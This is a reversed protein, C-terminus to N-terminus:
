AYPPHTQAYDSKRRYRSMLRDTGINFWRSAQRTRNDKGVYGMGEGVEVFLCDHQLVLVMATWARPHDVLAEAENVKQACFIPWEESILQENEQSATTGSWNQIGYSSVLGRYRTAGAMHTKLDSLVDYQEATMNGKDRIIDLAPRNRGYPRSSQQDVTPPQYRPGLKQVLELTPRNDQETRM